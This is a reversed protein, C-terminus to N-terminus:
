RFESEDMPIFLEKLWTRMHGPYKRVLLISCPVSNAVTQHFSGHLRQVVLSDWSAGLVLLDDPRVEELIGGLVTECRRLIIRHQFRVSLADAELPASEPDVSADSLRVLRLEIGLSRAIAKGCAVTLDAQPSGTVAVVVRALSETPVSARLVAVDCPAKRVVPDLTAGLTRRSDPTWGRWGLVLLNPREEEITDLIAQHPHHAIRIVSHSAVHDRECLAAAERLFAEADPVQQEGTSLPAQEPVRIVNLLAVQGQHFAAIANAVGVLKPMREPHATPALVEYERHDVIARRAAVPTLSLGKQRSRSFSFFLVAGAALWVASVYWATRSVTFLHAALAFQLLIALIPLVPFWPARFPRKLDPRRKRLVLATANVMLFLLLFMIDAASAVDELPFLVAMSVIIALSVQIARHPTRRTSHVEAFAHPLNADRGMAFSVRSSSYITANLASITSVLGGFLLLFGGIAPGGFMFQRAAEVIGLEKLQGLYAWSPMGDPGAVAGISVFAILLYVALVIGVSWLIARPINREPNVVEEGCQAVIEYGQFAIYIVGMAAFVGGFGEPLFPTFGASWDPQGRLAWLGSVIFLGLVALKGVTIFVGVKGTESSGRFNVYGFLLIAGAAAMKAFVESQLGLVRGTEAGLAAGLYHGFGIAYLSCAVSHGFWSIWGTVFAPLGGVGHQTWVYGGGAAPMMSGMEAYVFATLFAICGNLAFALLVGPGAQGAATGTLVFIGAGIMAGIGIMLVQFMTMDRSLQVEGTRQDQTADRAPEAM